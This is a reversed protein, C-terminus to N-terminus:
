PPRGRAAGPDCGRRSFSRRDISDSVPRDSRSSRDRGAGEGPLCPSRLQRKPRQSNGCRKTMGPGRLPVRSGSVGTQCPKASDAARSQVGGARGEPDPNAQPAGSHCRRDYAIARGELLPSGRNAEDEPSECLLGFQHLSLGIVNTTRHLMSSRVSAVGADQGHPDAAGTPLLRFAQYPKRRIRDTVRHWAPGRRGQRPDGRRSPSPCPSTHPNEPCDV